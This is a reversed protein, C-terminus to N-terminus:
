RSNHLEVIFSSNDIDHCLYSIVNIDHIMSLKDAKPKLISISVIEKDRQLIANFFSLLLLLQDETEFLRHFGFDTLPHMYRAM